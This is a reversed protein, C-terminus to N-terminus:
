EHAQKIISLVEDQELNISYKKRFYGNLTEMDENRIQKIENWVFEEMRQRVQWPINCESLHADFKDRWKTILEEKNTM